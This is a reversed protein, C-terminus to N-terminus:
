IRSFLDYLYIHFINNWKLTIANLFEYRTALNNKKQFIILVITHYEESNPLFSRDIYNEDISRIKLIKVISRACRSQLKCTFIAMWIAMANIYTRSFHVYRVHPIMKIANRQLCILGEISFNRIEINKM